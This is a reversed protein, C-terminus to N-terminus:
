SRVSASPAPVPRGGPTAQAWRALGAAVVSLVVVSTLFPVVTGDFARDILAGILSGVAVQAAGTVSSAMGAVSGMPGMALTNFNPIMIAHGSLVVAMGVVFAWLPPRGGTALAWILDQTSSAPSYAWPVVRTVSGPMLRSWVSRM